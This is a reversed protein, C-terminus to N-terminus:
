TSTLSFGQATDRTCSKPMPFHRPVRFLHGLSVAHPHAVDVHNCSCSQVCKGSVGAWLTVEAEAKWDWDASCPFDAHILPFLWSRGGHAFRKKCHVPILDTGLLFCSLASCSHPWHRLWTLSCNCAKKGCFHTSALDGTYCLASTEQATSGQSLLGQICLLLCVFASLIVATEVIKAEARLAQISLDMATFVAKGQQSFSTTLHESNNELFRSDQHPTLWINASIQSRGHLEGM